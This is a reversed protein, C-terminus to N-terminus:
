PIARPCGPSRSSSCGSTSSTPVGHRPAAAPPRTRTSCTRHRPRRQARAFGPQDLGNGNAQLGEAPSMRIVTGAPVPTTLNLQPWGAFNQGFDFVYVDRPGPEHREEPVFEEVIRVPPADRAVLRTALNPPPAIGPTSGASPPATVASPPRPSTPARGRGLRGARPPRRLGLRRVLRRDRLRRVRTRWSRDSVIVDTSGNAYTIELRAIM